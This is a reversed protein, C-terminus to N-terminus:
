NNEAGLAIWKEIKRISCDDLKNQGQPMPSYESLHNISGSLRGNDAVTKIGDYSELNVGGSQSTNNHCGVCYQSFIPRVSASLTITTTDCALSNECSNNEAGQDIWNRIIAIQESSLANAPPPPMRDELKTETIKEFIESSTARGARVEGTSMINEYSDLIVGDAATGADHCGSMACNSVMLPLVENQFYVSDPDCANNKTGIPDHTCSSIVFSAVLITAGVVLLSNINM